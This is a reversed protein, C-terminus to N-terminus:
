RPDGGGGLSGPWDAGRLLITATLSVPAGSIRDWTAFTVRLRLRRGGASTVDFVAPAVQGPDRDGAGAEPLAAQLSKLSPALPFRDATGGLSIVLDAGEITVPLVAADSGGEPPRQQIIREILARDFGGLDLDSPRGAAFTWSEEAGLASRGYDLGLVGIMAASLQDPKGASRAEIEARQEAPLLPLVRGLEDVEDLAGLRSRLSNRSADDLREPDITEGDSLGRVLLAAQSRGVTAAVGWPGASSLALLVLPVAAILRIDGRWRTWQAAVVLCSALAALALFYRELTVGESQIRIGVAYVLLATPVVLLDAWFRGFVRTSAAGDQLFPEAAVRLSLVLISYFSVIWGIEGKPVEQTLVIKVAYLHIVFATTLTLPAAVWGLLPRVGNALRDGPGAVTTEDFEAPIRGLAFLPGVLTLATIYIHEYADTSLGIGFLYRIMELIASVGLVFILVSVFALTIGVSTWLTFTWFRRVDPRGVYPVLPISLCIAALLPPALIGLAEANWILFGAVLAGAPPLALVAVKGAGHSEAALRLAVSTSLAASLAALLWVADEDSLLHIDAVELNVLAAIVLILVVALPFRATALGAGLALSRSWRGFGAMGSFAM